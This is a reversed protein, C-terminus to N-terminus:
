VAEIFKEEFGKEFNRAFYSQRVAPDTILTSLSNIPIKKGNIEKVVECSFIKKYNPIKEKRTIPVAAYWIARPFKWGNRERVLTVTAGSSIVDDVVIVNEIEPNIGWELSHVLVFPESGQQWIRKAFIEQSPFHGNFGLSKVRQASEGPYLFLTSEQKLNLQQFVTKQLKAIMASEDLFQVRQIRTEEFL